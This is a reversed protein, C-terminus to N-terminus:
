VEEAVVKYRKGDQKFTEGIKFREVGDDDEDSDAVLGRVLRGDGVNFAVRAYLAHLRQRATSGPEALDLDKALKKLYRRVKKAQKKQESASATLRSDSESAGNLVDLVAVVKPNKRIEYSLIRANQDSKCKYVAKTTVLADSTTIFKQIWARQKPTMERLLSAIRKGVETKTEVSM